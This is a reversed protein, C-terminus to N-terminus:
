TTSTSYWIHHAPKAVDDERGEAETTQSKHLSWKSSVDQLNVKGSSPSLIQTWMYLCSQWRLAGLQHWMSSQLGPHCWKCLCCSFPLHTPSTRGGWSHLYSPQLHLARSVMGMRGARESSRHPHSPTRRRHLPAARPPMSGTAAKYRLFINDLMWFSSGRRPRWVYPSLNSNLVLCPKTIWLKIFIEKNSRNHHTWVLFSQSSTSFPGTPLRKSLSCWWSTVEIFDENRSFRLNGPPYRSTQLLALNLGYNELSHWM